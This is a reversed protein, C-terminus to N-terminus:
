RQICRHYSRLRFCHVLSRIALRAQRREWVIGASPSEALLLEIGELRERQRAAASEVAALRRVSQWALGTVALAAVALCSASGLVFSLLCRATKM